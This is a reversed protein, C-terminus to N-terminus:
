LNAFVTSRSSIAPDFNLDSLCRRGKTFELFDGDLQTGSSKTKSTNSQVDDSDSRDSGTMNDSQDSGTAKDSSKRSASSLVGSDQQPTDLRSTEKSSQVHAAFRGKLSGKLDFVKSIKRNYFINKVTWSYKELSRLIILQQYM